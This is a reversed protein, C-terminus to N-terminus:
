IIPMKMEDFFDVFRQCSSHTVQTPDSIFIWQSDLNRWSMKTIQYDRPRPITLNFNSAGSPLALFLCTNHAQNHTHTVERMDWQEFLVVFEVMSHM